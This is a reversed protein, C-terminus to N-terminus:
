ELNQKAQMAKEKAIAKEVVERKLDERKRSGFFWLVGFCIVYFLFMAM